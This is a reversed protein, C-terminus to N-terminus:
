ALEEIEASHRLIVGGTKKMFENMENKISPPTGRKMNCIYAFKKEFKEINKFLDITSLLQQVAKPIYAKRQNKLEIFCVSRETTIVADCRSIDSGDERKLPINNDVPIFKYDIRKRSYHVRAGWIQPNGIDIYVPKKGDRDDPDVLGFVECSPVSQGYPSFDIKEM